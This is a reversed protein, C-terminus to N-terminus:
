LKALATVYLFVSQSNINDYKVTQLNIYERKVPSKKFFFIREHKYFINMKSFYLFSHFNLWRYDVLWPVIVLIKLIIIEITHTHKCTYVNEKKERKKKCIRFLIKFLIALPLSYQCFVFAQKDPSLKNKFFAVFGLVIVLLAIGGRWSSGPIIDLSVHALYEELTFCSWWHSLFSIRLGLSEWIHLFIESGEATSM